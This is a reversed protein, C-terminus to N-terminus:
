FDIGVEDFVKKLEELDKMLKIEFELFKVYYFSKLYLIYGFLFNLCLEM